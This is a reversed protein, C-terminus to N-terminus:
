KNKNKHRRAESYAIAVSQNRPKGSNIEAKINDKFGKSGIRTNKKLTM